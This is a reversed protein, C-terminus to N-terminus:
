PAPKAEAAPMPAPEKPVVPEDVRLEGNGVTLVIPENNRMITAQCVFTAGGDRSGATWLRNRDDSWAVFVNDGDAALAADWVGHGTPKSARVAPKFTRGGNDSAAVAVYDEGFSSYGVWAVYVHDGTGSPEYAPIEDVVFDEPQTKITGRPHM